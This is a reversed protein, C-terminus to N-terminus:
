DLRISALISDLAATLAERHTPDLWQFRLALARGHKVLFAHYDFAIPGHHISCEATLRITTAGDVVVPEQRVDYSKLRVWRRRSAVHNAAMDEASKLPSGAVIPFVELPGWSRSELDVIHIIATPSSAAREVALWGPPTRFALGISANRFEVSQTRNNHVLCLEWLWRDEMKVLYRREDTSYWLKRTAAVAGEPYSDGSYGDDFTLHVEFAEFVGAPVTVTRRGVVEIRGDHVIPQSRELVAVTTRFGDALPLCRILHVIQDLDYVPRGPTIPVSTKGRQFEVRGPAYSVHVHEKNGFADRTDGRRSIPLWTDRAVDVVSRLDLWNSELRLVPTGESVSEQARFVALGTFGGTKEWPVRLVLTQDTGWPPPLTQLAIASAPIKAILSTQDPFRSTLREFAARAETERGSKSHCMGLRYLAQAITPREADVQAAIKRYIEIAGALDGQTEEAYIAKELMEAPSTAASEPALWLAFSFTAWIM